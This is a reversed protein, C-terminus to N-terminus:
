ASPNPRTVGLEGVTSYNFIEVIGDLGRVTGSAKCVLYLKESDSSTVSFDGWVSFDFYNWNSYTEVSGGWRMGGKSNFDSEEQFYCDIVDGSSAANAWNGSLHAVLKNYGIPLIKPDLTAVIKRVMQDGSTINGEAVIDM